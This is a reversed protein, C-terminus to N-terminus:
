GHLSARGTGPTAAALAAAVTLFSGFVVIRDAEGADNRAAQLAAAVGDFTRIVSAAVGAAALATGVADARAGRPGPLGAVFWRDVRSRMAAIVGHVDKDALIGFV